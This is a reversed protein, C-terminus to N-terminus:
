EVTVSKALNRPRDVDTGKILAVHYSLLQLPINFTIPATIRGVNSAAKIVRFGEEANDAVKSQEDEFVIMQGGRARVEQLNSKLKELLDDNPAIAVVPMQDDILALPGHKLEGAPYAEAHIYSIEKLKLAGEMAIPYMTGRGLFLTSSRDAFSLAIEKILEEQKLADSILTPLKFLGEVILAEREASLRGKVKGIATMLLALAVLQTTFAKTSAVGIEPGAHTLFTLDCERTLSSEPVNCIALSRIPLHKIRQLAALTDATEGSQSVAVFLTNEEVVPNRYRYESAVEVNCPLGIIDEFWYKAVLGSHYSTGCAVIQVRQTTLFIDAAEHGFASVLVQDQLVRGALTDIVAQPQEFIEKHMFHRHEGLEVASSSLQSIKIEREVVEGQADYITVCDRRIDAVDGEEMFIFRQTVPLLASVDSAIFHEGIGVGIVLPSGKRAAILREPEDVAMVGLAYAGKFRAVALQVAQLLDNETHDLKQHVAHAVVETDTESTFRYGLTVQEAKLDQYNEIIGNHVVAVRHNCIHPHANNESPKGHTAWRTHAIGIRGTLPTELGANKEELAKIKGLERVRLISGSEGIVAIGSSDYGRYELRRLGEFLIPVLNRDAIGGVIGCM